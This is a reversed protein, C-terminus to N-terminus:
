PQESLLKAGGTALDYLARRGRLVTGSKERIIAPQGTVIATRAELDYDADAGEVTRGSTRDEIKVGGAARLRQAQQESDLKVVVNDASMERPAQRVRVAGAYRIEGAERDYDLTEATTTTPM